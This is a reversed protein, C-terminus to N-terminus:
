CIVDEKGQYQEWVVLGVGVVLALPWLAVLLLTPLLPLVPATETEASLSSLACWFLLVGGVYVVLACALMM